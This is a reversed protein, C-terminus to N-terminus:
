AMSLETHPMTCQMNHVGPQELARKRAKERERGGEREGCERARTCGLHAAPYSPLRLMRVSVCMGQARQIAAVGSMSFAVLESGPGGGLFTM